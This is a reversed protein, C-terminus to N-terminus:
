FQGKRDKYLNELSSNLEKNIDFNENNNNEDRPTDIVEKEIM